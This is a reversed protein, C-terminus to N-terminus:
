AQNDVFAIENQASAPTANVMQPYSISLVNFILPPNAIV